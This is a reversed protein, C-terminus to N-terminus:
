QSQTVKLDKEVDTYEEVPLGFQKWMLAKDWEKYMTKIKNSKQEVEFIMCAHWTAKAGNGAVGHWAEGSHRGSATYRLTVVNGKCLVVDYKSLSLDNISKMVEGHVEAYEPVTNAKPFTSQGIFKSDSTCLHSVNAASAQKPDYAIKMYELCLDINKKEEQTYDLNAGIANATSM